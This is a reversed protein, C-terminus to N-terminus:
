DLKADVLLSMMTDQPRKLDHCNRPYSKALSQSLEWVVIKHMLGNWVELGRIYGYLQSIYRLFHLLASVCGVLPTM